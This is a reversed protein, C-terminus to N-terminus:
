FTDSLARIALLIEGYHAVHLAVHMFRM